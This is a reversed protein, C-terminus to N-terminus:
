GEPKYVKGTEHNPQIEIILDILNTDNILSKIFLEPHLAKWFYKVFEETEADSMGSKTKTRMEQEAQKRWLMSLRYDVPWLVMLNDIREWLPLYEKLKENMELAFQRDSATVIPSPPNEFAKVDIPYVGLFWGEFLVIDINKVPEPQTRDGAGEFASKDFRPIAIPQKSNNRLKDLISIGLEVDHTGPPGRWILRPDKQQLVKREAYTKYLDDLSLSLTTYGLEALILKLITALTTKGTGQSGLIGQILPRNLVQRNEALNIALPLWLNWINGLFNEQKSLNNILSLKPYVKELVEGRNKLVNTANGLDINFAKARQRDTLCLSELQQWEEPLLTKGDARAQLIEQFSKKQSLDM